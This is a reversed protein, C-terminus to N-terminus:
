RQYAPLYHMFVELTMCALATSYCRAPGNVRRAKRWGQWSGDSSQKELLLTRAKDSWQAWADGGAQFMAQMAYYSAYWFYTTGPKYKMSQMRDIARRVRKDDFAGFLQMSLSGAATQALSPGRGPQYSFGGKEHACRRVYSLARDITEQPVDFRANMAARLTVVQMVTVSLDANGPRAHYRWGGKKAGKRTQAQLILDVARRISRHMDPSPQWGYAEIMALTALAHEYMPGHSTSPSKYMGASTQTNRIFRVGRRVVDQYPGRDPVHGRGLFALVCMGNIGNNRGYQCPWSGDARQQDALYELAADVSAEVRAMKEPDPLPSPTPGERATQASAGTAVAAVLGLISPYSLRGM